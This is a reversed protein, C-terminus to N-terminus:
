DALAHDNCGIRSHYLNYSVCPNQWLLLHFSNWVKRFNSVLHSISSPSRQYFRHLAM